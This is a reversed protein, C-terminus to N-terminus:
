VYATLLADGYESVLKTSHIFRGSCFATRVGRRGQQDKKLVRGAGRATTHLLGGLERKTTQSQDFWMGRCRLEGGKTDVAGACQGKWASVHLDGQLRRM